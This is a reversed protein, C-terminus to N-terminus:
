TSVARARRRRSAFYIAALPLLATMVMPRFRALIGYNGVSLSLAALLFVATLWLVTVGPVIVPRRRLVQWSILAAPVFISVWCALEAIALMMVGSTSWEWPFPGAIVRPLTVALVDTLTGRGSLGSFGSVAISSLEATAGVLKEESLGLASVLNALVSQTATAVFAALIAAGRSGVGARRAATLLAAICIAAAVGVGLTGRIWALCGLVPILWWAIHYHGEQLVRVAILVALSILLITLTERLVRPVWMAIIPMAALIWAAIRADQAGDSLGARRALFAATAGVASVSVAHCALNLALPILPSPGGLWYLAGLIWMYGEKGAVYTVPSGHGAFAEAMAAALAHWSVEDNALCPAPVRILVFAILDVILVCTIPGDLRVRASRAIAIALGEGLILLILVLAVSSVTLSNSFCVM